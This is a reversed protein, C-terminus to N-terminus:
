SGSLSGQAYRGGKGGLPLNCVIRKQCRFDRHIRKHNLPNVPTDFLPRGGRTHPAEKWLDPLTNQHHRSGPFPLLDLMLVTSCQSSDQGELSTATTSCELYFFVRKCKVEILSVLTETHMLTQVKWFIVFTRYIHCTATVSFATNSLPPTVQKTALQSTLMPSM